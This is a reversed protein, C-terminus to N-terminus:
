RLVSLAEAEEEEEGEGLGSEVADKLTQLAEGADPGQALIRITNGSEVGLKLLSAMSKGNAIKGDHQM